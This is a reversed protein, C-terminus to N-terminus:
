ACGKVSKKLKDIDRLFSTGLKPSMKKLKDIDRLIHDHRKEFVDAVELSTTVAQKNKMIVLDNM